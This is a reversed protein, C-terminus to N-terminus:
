QVHQLASRESYEHPADVHVLEQLGGTRENTRVYKRSARQVSQSSTAMTAHAYSIQWDWWPRMSTILMWPSDTSQESIAVATYTSRCKFYVWFFGEKEVFLPALFKQRLLSKQSLFSLYPFLLPRPLFYSFYLMEGLGGLWVPFSSATNTVCLIWSWECQWCAHQCRGSCVTSYTSMVPAIMSKM